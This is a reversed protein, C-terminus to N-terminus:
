SNKGINAFTKEASMFFQTAKWIKQSHEYFFNYAQFNKPQAKLFNHLRGFRKRAKLNKKRGKLTKKCVNLTKHCLSKNKKQANM